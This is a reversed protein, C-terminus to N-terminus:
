KTTFFPETARALTTEDMGEGTDTVSLRILPRLRGRARRHHDHRRGAHRGARERRPQSAGARASQRRRACASTSAPFADRDAGDTRDVEPSPRGHRARPGIRRGGAPRPGARRAFALMRQTLAAGREAGEVASELLAKSKDDDRLRKRLLELNGLVVSLLNNFDHAVGGTLQGIAEIKQSQRLAAEARRRATVDLLGGVVRIFQGSPDREVQESVVADLVEGLALLRPWDVKTRRGASAETM